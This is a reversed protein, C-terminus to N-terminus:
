SFEKWFQVFLLKVFIFCNKKKTKNLTFLLHLWLWLVRDINLTCVSVM